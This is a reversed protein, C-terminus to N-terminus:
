KELEKLLNKLEVEEMNSALLGALMEEADAENMTELKLLFDDIKDEPVKYFMTQALLEEKDENKKKKNKKTKRRRGGVKEGADIQRLIETKLKENEMADTLNKADTLIDFREGDVFATTMMKQPIQGKATLGNWGNMLGAEKSFQCPYVIEADGRIEKCEKCYKTHRILKKDVEQPHGKIQFGCPTQITRQQGGRNFM